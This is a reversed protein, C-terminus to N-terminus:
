LWKAIDEWIEPMEMAEAFQKVWNRIRKRDLKPNAQIISQIDIMDKPRHALAKFIILDEPTPIRIKLRGLPREIAREIVEFEFPLVGFSVDAEIGTPEHVLLLIRRERAFQEADAYRLSFGVTQAAKIFTKLDKLELTFMADIDATSRPESIMGVAVGGIIVGANDFRKILKQMAQIAAIPPLKNSKAM